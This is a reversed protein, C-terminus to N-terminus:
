SVNEPLCPHDGELEAICDEIEARSAAWTFVYQRRSRSERHINRLQTLDAYRLLGKGLSDIKQELWTWDTKEASGTGPVWQIVDLDEIECLAELHKLADPGDLHYEVGDFRRMEERLYPAAFERFMAPSIMCSFDCQPVNICGRAYMGHRNISGYEAFGFLDAFAKLVEGHAKTIQTLARHVADPNDVMSMLLNETGHIAALADLNASMTPAALMLAGDCRARLAQVFEVTRQWWRGEPRFRIDADALNTLYPVAWSGPKGEHFSLDGGLLAAFHDAGFEVAYFPIADAVFEYSEAWRMVQDVVPDFQGDAGATYPPKSVAERGAKLVTAGVMPRRNEGRWFADWRAAAIEFDPKFSLTM